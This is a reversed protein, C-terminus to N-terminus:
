RNVPWPKPVPEDAARHTGVRPLFRARTLTLM